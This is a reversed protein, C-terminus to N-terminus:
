YEGRGESRAAQQLYLDRQANRLEEDWRREGNYRTNSVARVANMAEQRTLMAEAFLTQRLAQNAPMLKTVIKSAVLKEVYEYFIPEMQSLCYGPYDDKLFASIVGATFTGTKTISVKIHPYPVMWLEIKQKGEQFDAPTFEQSAIDTWSSAGATTAGKVTLKIKTGGVPAASAVIYLASHIEGPLEVTFTNTFDTTASSLTISGFSFDLFNKALRGNSVYLLAANERDTLLYGNEIVYFYDGQIELPRACDVPLKYMYKYPSYNVMKNEPNVESSFVTDIKELAARRKGNTWPITSIANVVTQLYYEKLIRWKLTNQEVDGENLIEEGVDLFIRNALLTDINM